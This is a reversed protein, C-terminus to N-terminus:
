THVSYVTLAMGDPRIWEADVYEWSAPHNADRSRDKDPDGSEKGFSM